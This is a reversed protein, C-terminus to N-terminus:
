QELLVGLAETDRLVVCDVESVGVVENVRLSLKLLVVVCVVEPDGLAEGVSHRLEM